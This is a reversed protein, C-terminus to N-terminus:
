NILKLITSCHELLKNGRRLLHSPMHFFTGFPSVVLILFRGALADTDMFAPATNYYYVAAGALGWRVASSKWSRPKDAPSATSAWRRTTSRTATRLLPRAASRLATRYM